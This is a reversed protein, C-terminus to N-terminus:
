DKISQKFQDLTTLMLHIQKVLVELEAQCKDVEVNQLSELRKVLEEVYPLFFRSEIEFGASKLFIQGHKGIGKQLLAELQADADVSRRYTLQINERLKEIINQM